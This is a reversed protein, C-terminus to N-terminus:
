ATRARSRRARAERDDDPSKAAAPENVLDRASAVAEAIRAGRAIGARLKANPRGLLQVRALKSPKADSKYALFQYSGSRSAKSSRRRPM